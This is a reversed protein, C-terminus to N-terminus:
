PHHRGPPTTANVEDDLARLTLGLIVFVGVVSSARVVPPLGAWYIAFGGATDAAADGFEADDASMLKIDRRALEDPGLRVPPAAVRAIRGETNEVGLSYSGAPLQQFAYTGRGSTTAQAVDVGLSDILHVRFGSAARGDVDILFGELRAGAASARLPAQPLGLVLALLTSAAARHMKSM